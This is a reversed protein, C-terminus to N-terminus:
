VSLLLYFIDNLKGLQEGAEAEIPKLFREATILQLTKHSKM